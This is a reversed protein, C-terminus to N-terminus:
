PHASPRPTNTNAHRAEHGHAVHRARMITYMYRRAYTHSHGDAMEAASAVNMKSMVIVCSCRDDDITM